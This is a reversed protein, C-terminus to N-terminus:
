ARSRGPSGTAQGGEKGVPTNPGTNRAHVRSRPPTRVPPPPDRFTLYWQQIVSGSRGGGAGVIAYQGEQGGVRGLALTCM